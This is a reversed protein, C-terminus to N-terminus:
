PRGLLGVRHALPHYSCIFAWRLGLLTYIGGMYTTKRCQTFMYTSTGEPEATRTKKQTKTINASIRQSTTLASGHPSSGAVSTNKFDRV